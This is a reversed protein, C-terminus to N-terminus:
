VPFEDELSKLIEYGIQRVSALEVGMIDQENGESSVFKWGVSNLKSIAAYVEDLKLSIHAGRDQNCM